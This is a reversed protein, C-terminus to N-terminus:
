TSIYQAIIGDSLIYPVSKGNQIPRKATIAKKLGKKMLIKVNQVISTAIMSSLVPVHCKDKKSIEVTEGVSKYLM